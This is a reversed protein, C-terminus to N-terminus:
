PRRQGIMAIVADLAPDQGAFYAKATLQVPLQPVLSRRRDGPHSLQWRAGTHAGSIGSYPLVYMSEDGNNNAAMSTPEGVFVPGVFRELDGVLNAAASYVGRGIIVYVENGETADFQVITRVLEAYAATNGGNNHRLDVIVNRARSDALAKKLRLAFASLTETQSPTVQNVQVYLANAEPLPDFWHADAVRSLFRPTSVIPPPGLKRWREAPVTRLSRNVLEGSPSRFTLDIQDTRGTIGLGKLFQAVILNNPGTWAIQMSSENGQIGGIRRLAELAPTSGISVLQSGILDRAEGAGDVVYIGEPFLYLQLPLQTFKIIKPEPTTFLGSHGHGISNILQGLGVIVEEDSASPLSALLERKRKIFDEPLAREFYYPDNRSIESTLYEIDSRWGAARSVQAAAPQGSIVRFRPEAKLAEFRADEYLRARRLYHEEFVLKELVDLAAKRDGLAAYSAALWYYPQGASQPGSLEAARRYGAAAEAYKKLRFKVEALRVWDGGAFPYEETLREYAAEAEVNKEENLLQQAKNKLLFYAHADAPTRLLRTPNEADNQAAPGAPRAVQESSGVTLANEAFTAAPIHESRGGRPQAQALPGASLACAALICALYPSPDRERRLRAPSIVTTYHLRTM